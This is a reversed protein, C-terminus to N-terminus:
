RDRSSKPLLSRFARAPRELYLTDHILMNLSLIRGPIVLLRDLLAKREEGGPVLAFLRGSEMLEMIRTRRQM